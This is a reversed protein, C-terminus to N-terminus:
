HLIILLKKLTKKSLTQFILTKKKKKEKQIFSKIKIKTKRLEKGRGVGDLWARKIKQYIYIKEEEGEKIKHNLKKARKKFLQPQHYYSPSPKTLQKPIIGLEQFPTTM